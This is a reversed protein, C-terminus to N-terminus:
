SYVGAVFAVVVSVVAACVFFAALRRSRGYSDVAALAWMASISAQLLWVCNTLAAWGAIGIIGIAGSALLLSGRPTQRNRSM